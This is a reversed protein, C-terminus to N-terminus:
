VHTTSLVYQNITRQAAEGNSKFDVHKLESNLFQKVANEFEEKIYYGEQVFIAKALNVETGLNEGSNIQFYNLLTGLDKYPQFNSYFIFTYDYKQLKFVFYLKCVSM